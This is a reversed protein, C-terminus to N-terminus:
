NGVRGDIMLRQEPKKRRLMHALGVIGAPVTLFGPLSTPIATLLGVVLAKIMASERDDKYWHRQVKYTILGLAVGAPVSLVTSAGLTAVQGGFLMTDVVVTLFAVRPDLGFMQGFGGHFHGARQLPEPTLAYGLGSPASVNRMQTPPVNPMGCFSCYRSVEPIQTQCHACALMQGDGQGRTKWVRKASRAIRAGGIRIMRVSFEKGAVRM